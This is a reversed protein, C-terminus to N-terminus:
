CSLEHLVPYKSSYMQSIIGWIRCGKFDVVKIFMNCDIRLGFVDVSHIDM